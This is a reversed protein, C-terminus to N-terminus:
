SSADDGVAVVVDAGQPPTVDDPLTEVTTGLTAAVWEAQEENGPVAYVVTTDGADLEDPGSGAGGPMFGGFSLTRVVIDQEDVRGGSWVSVVTERREERTGRDRIPEGARIADFIDRAGPGYAIVYYVGDITQNYGPVAVMPVGGTVVDRADDALVRMQNVSLEEDTELSGAVDEVLEFLRVPDALVRRDTLEGIMGQIFRQQRDIRDFDGLPGSRSRVYSLAQRDDMEHCGADFDAGSKEDRLPAELCIEVEGLTRVVDIFGGLSMAVYHNVPLGFNSQIVGVLDDAGGAFVDTIKRHRDKEDYVLLDRPMSVLSITDRDASVAVYIITDARQGEFSGLTLENREEADLGARSDSGVILFHRDSPGNGEEVEDLQPVPVRTLSAEARQILLVGTTGVAAIGVLAAVGLVALLRVLPSMRPGNQVTPGWPGISPDASSPRRAGAM